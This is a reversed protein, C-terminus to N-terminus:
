YFGRKVYNYIREIDLTLVFRIRSAYDSFGPEFGLSSQLPFYVEMFEHIINLRVGSDYKFRADEGKSKVYGADAYLEFWRWIGISFNTTLIWENAYPDDFISKFGGETIIIQQSLFGSDESRGLYNLDFLYDSPRDLSYSFFDSETHNFLFSGFYLRFDVYRNINTLKRYRLDLSVKSFDNNYQFDAFYRLDNVINPEAFAYRINFINYQYSEPNVVEDPLEKDVVVYRALISKGGVDRLSKRKFDILVFPTLKNFALDNDYHSRSAALGARYRYVSTEEPLHEYAVAVSGTLSKSKFGYVPTASFLWKKKFLAQNYINPGLLFGDYFNYGIIPKYFVQNYYPDEIDRFFTFKMPRNLIKKDLKKWNDRLNAEPYLYEYNLSLRDIDKNSVTVTQEDDFPEVWQKFKITKKDVGYLTIPATFNSKNKIVVKVSDGEEEVKKITYNIKKRTTLYENFYWSLDKDTNAKLIENFGDSHSFQLSNEDYFQRLSKKVIDDNLYEDLYRLGLGSKYRNVLKLNFNSLSDARTSLSQDLQKRTSFQYVFPYKGNFELKAINYRRIGWKKSINGIAKVEPYFQKVYDIMLYIQIGDPLWNDERNNTLITNEIYRDTLAKFLKIDWEFIDSFPNWSKKLQNFGYVPQKLYTTKNILIKKHPYAGLYQSIFDLQRQLVDSKLNETLNKSELNTIIEPGNTQYVSFDNNLQINLEVDLRNNGELQYLVQNEELTVQANLDTHLTFGMPIRFDIHYDTPRMYYDDMNLNSFLHWKKDFVAPTLHWYRLNYNTGNQGYRTFKDSPIKVEYVAHLKISDGAFLTKPLLIRVIDSADAPEEFVINQDENQLLLIKSYGRDKLKAFHLSKDYDEILRKSLPTYKDKYSNAWNLLYITDLAVDAANYFVIEQDILIKSQDILSAEISIKNNQAYLFFPVFLIIAFIVKKRQM